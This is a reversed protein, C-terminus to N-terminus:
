RRQDPPGHLALGVRPPPGAAQPTALNIAMGPHIGLKVFNAGYKADRAGIRIDCMLSLGLGGGVTHGNLAGVVPIDLSMVSLFPEYMAFSREHPLQTRAGDSERQVELRLDAGACFCRGKGTIVLCRAAPQARVWEVSAAFADLVEPTM